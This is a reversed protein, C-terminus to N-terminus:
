DGCVSVGAGCVGGGRVFPLLNWRGRGRGQMWGREIEEAGEGRRM